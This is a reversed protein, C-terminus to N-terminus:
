FKSVFFLHIVFSSMRRAGPATRFVSSVTSGLLCPPFERPDVAQGALSANYFRLSGVRVTVNYETNHRAHNIRVFLSSGEITASPLLASGLQPVAGAESNHPRRPVILVAAVPAAAGQQESCVDWTNYAASSPCLRRTHVTINAPAVVSALPATFAVPVSFRFTVSLASGTLVTSGPSPVVSLLAPPSCTYSVVSLSLLTLLALM